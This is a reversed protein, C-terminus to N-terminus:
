EALLHKRGSGDPGVPAMLRTLLGLGFMVIVSAAAAVDFLRNIRLGADLAAGAALPGVVAGMRANAMCWGMGLARLRPPYLETCLAGFCAAGGYGTLGVLLCALLLPTQVPGAEALVAMGIGSLGFAVPLVWRSGFRDILLGLVVAGALGGFNFLNLALVSIPLRYGIERMSSPLWNVVMYEALVALFAVAWFLPTCILLRGDFLNRLRGALEASVRSAASNHARGPLLAIWGALVLPVIGGLYFAFPWGYRPVFAACAAGGIIAGIPQGSLAVVVATAQHRTPTSNAVIAMILPFTAGLGIGAVLRLIVLQDVGRTLACLITTVGFLVLSYLLVSREGALRAAPGALLSGVMSGALAAGFVRGFASVSVSWSRGIEPALYGISQLDFGDVMIIIAGVVVVWIWHRPIAASNAITNM